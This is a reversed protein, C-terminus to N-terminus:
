AVSYSDIMTTTIWFLGCIGAGVFCALTLFTGWMAIDQTGGIGHLRERRRHVVGRVIETGIMTAVGMAMLIISAKGTMVTVPYHRVM